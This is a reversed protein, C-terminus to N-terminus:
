AAALVALFAAGYRELKKEGMGPIDALESLSRPNRNALALLTSDHFIVYPPVGQDRALRSREARLAAFRASGAADLGAQAERPSRVLNQLAQKVKASNDRRLRVPQEGRLIPRALETAKLAGYADHAV